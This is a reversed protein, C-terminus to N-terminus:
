RNMADNKDAFVHDFLFISSGTKPTGIFRKQVMSMCCSLAGISLESLFNTGIQVPSCRNLKACYTTEDHSDEKM